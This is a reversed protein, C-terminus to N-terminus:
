IIVTHLQKAYRPKFSCLVHYGQMARVKVAPATHKWFLYKNPVNDANIRLM